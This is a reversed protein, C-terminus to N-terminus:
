VVLLPQWKGDVDLRYFQGEDVAILHLWGNRALNEVLAHRNIIDSIADLPAAIVVQLRVPEHQYDQGDHLSQLPLGTMLDGRNGSLIGFKGVVNHITKSGSGYHENDVTSAYYQLNIWNTVIMPATMILELTKFGQDLQWNYSHMFTRGDLKIRKTLERPAVIFAANGALGWEPRVESWDLSRRVVDSPEEASLTPLREWRNQVTALHSIRKLEEIERRKDNSVQQLDFFSIEDTTTNHLGAVFLTENPIDIGRTQLGRRVSPSNLLKAAFRANAEGTHGGCAGCDLGARM